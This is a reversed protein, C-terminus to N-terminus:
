PRSWHDPICCVSHEERGHLCWVLSSIPYDPEGVWKCTLQPVQSPRCGSEATHSYRFDCRLKLPAPVAPVTPIAPVVQVPPITTVVQEPPIAPVVPVPISIPVPVPISVPTVLPVPVPVSIPLPVPIPVPTVLPM